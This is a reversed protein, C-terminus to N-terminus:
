CLHGVISLNDWLLILSNSGLHLSPHLLRTLSASLIDGCLDDKLAGGGLSVSVILEVHLAICAPM